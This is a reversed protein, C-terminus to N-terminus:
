ATAWPEAIPNMKHNHVEVVDRGLLLPPDRLVLMAVDGRDSRDIALTVHNVISGPFGRRSASWLDQALYGNNLYLKGGVIAWRYPDIDAIRDLSMAYACYGGYRPVYKEPDAKFRQLNDASAFRYTVGQWRYTYEDVGKTPQGVTFYAVPAYGKLAFGDKTNVALVPSASSGAEASGLWSASVVGAILLFVLFKSPAMVKEKEDRRNL